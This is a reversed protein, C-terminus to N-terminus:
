AQVVPIVRTFPNESILLDDEWFTDFVRKAAWSDDLRGHLVIDESNHPVVILPWLAGHSRGTIEDRQERIEADNAGVTGPEVTVRLVRRRQRATQSAIVKGGPGANVTNDPLYRLDSGDNFGRLATELYTIALEGLWAAGSISSQTGTLQLRAWRKAIATSAFAFMSPQRVAPSAELVNNAAFNDNSSRMQPAMGAEINHGALVLANWHPSLFVDDVLAYDSGGGAGTDHISLELYTIPADGHARWDEVTFSNTKQVYSTTSATAFYAQGSQWAMAGTLYKKTLPNYIQAQAQGAAANRLYLDFLIRQSTRVKYTKKISAAGGNKKVKAASGSRAEGATAETVAGGGSTTVAWGTPVGGPWSDLNGNDVLDKDLLALDVTYLPSATNTAFAAVADAYGDYLRAVPFNADLAPSPTILRAQELFNLLEGAVYRM